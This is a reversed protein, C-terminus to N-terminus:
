HVTGGVLQVVTSGLQTGCTLYHSAEISSLALRSHDTQEHDLLIAHTGAAIGALADVPQDGIMVARTPEVGLKRLAIRVPEPHPKHFPTDDATVVVDMYDAIGLEKLVRHAGYGNQEVVGMRSTVVGQKFGHSAFFDMAEIVGPQLPMDAHHHFHANHYRQMLDDQDPYDSSMRLLSEGVAGFMNLRITERDLPPLGVQPFIDNVIRESITVTDLVTGDLDWLAARPEFKKM